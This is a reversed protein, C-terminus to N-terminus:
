RPSFLIFVCAKRGGERRRMRLRVEQYEETITGRIDGFPVGIVSVDIKEVGEDDTAFFILAGFGM